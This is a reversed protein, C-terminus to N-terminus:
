GISFLKRGDAVCRQINEYNGSNVLFMEKFRISLLPPMRLRVGPLCSLLNDFTALRPETFFEDDLHKLDRTFEVDRFYELIKDDFVGHRTLWLQFFRAWDDSRVNLLALYGLRRYSTGSLKELMKASGFLWATIPDKFQKPRLGRLQDVSYTGLIWAAKDAEFHSQELYAELVVPTVTFDIRQYSSHEVLPVVQLDPFNSLLRLAESTPPRSNAWLKKYWRTFREAAERDSFAPIENANLFDELIYNPFKEVSNWLLTRDGTYYQRFDANLMCVEIIEDVQLQSFANAWIHFTSPSAFAVERWVEVDVPWGNVLSLVASEYRDTM